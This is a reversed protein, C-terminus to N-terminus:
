GETVITELLAAFRPVCVHVDLRERMRQRAGAAMRRRLDEDDLLRLIAKALAKPDRCPVLLGTEGDAVIEAPGTPCDTSVVPIGLAQAEMLVNPLGEFDSSLVCLQAAALAPHPNVTFGPMSVADDLGLSEIQRELKARLPGEGLILLDTPRRQRVLALAELLIDFRKQHCLRGLTVLAARSNGAEDTPAEAQQQVREVDVPTNWVQARGADVFPYTELFIERLENCQAVIHDFAKYSRRAWPQRWNPEMKPNNVILAVTKPRRDLSRVAEACLLAPNLAGSILVDPQIVRILHRLRKVATLTQLPHKLGLEYVPLAEPLPYVITSRHLVLHVDFREPDLHWLVNNIVREAGGSSMDHIVFLARIRTKM